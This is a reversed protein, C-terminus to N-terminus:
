QTMEFSILADTGDANFSAPRDAHISIVSLAPILVSASSTCTNTLGAVTCTLATDVGAVRLTFSRASNNNVTVTTAVALNTATLAVNPSLMYVASETTNAVSTGVPSGYTTTQTFTPPIQTMRAMM